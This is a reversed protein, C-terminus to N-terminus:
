DVFQSSDCFSGVTKLFSLWGTKVQRNNMCGQIEKGIVVIGASETLIAM